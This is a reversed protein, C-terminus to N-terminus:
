TLFLEPVLTKVCVGGVDSSYPGGFNTYMQVKSRLRKTYKKSNSELFCFRTKRKIADIYM